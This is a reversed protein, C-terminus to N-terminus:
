RGLRLASTARAGRALRPRLEIWVVGALVAAMGAAGWPREHRYAFSLAGLALLALAPPPATRRLAAVAALATALWLASAVAEVAAALPSTAVRDALSADAGQWEFAGVGVGAFATYLTYAVAFPIALVRVATAAGDDIGDVLLLFMWALLCLIAPFALHVGLFLWPSGGAFVHSPHLMSALYALLPAGFLVARRRTM